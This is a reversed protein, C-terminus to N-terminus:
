VVLMAKEALCILDLPKGRHAGYVASYAASAANAASYAPFMVAHKAYAVAPPTISINTEYMVRAAKGSRDKGSLWNQAWCFFSDEKYVELACLIGFAIRQVVTIWPLPIERLLTMETCGGKLGNDKKHQGGAEVEWLRPNDIDAHIPNLLVALSPHDYYHLWGASCLEGNGDTTAKVGLQWQFGERTQLNHRTLKYKIM